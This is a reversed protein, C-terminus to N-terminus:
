IANYGKVSLISMSVTPIAPDTKVKTIFVAQASARELSPNRQLITPIKGLPSENILENFLEDILHHYKQAHEYLFALAHNPVYGRRLLKNVLHVEFLSVGIGWPIHIEDYAHKDTLSSIVGRFSFHSRTGFVHKRFIGEKKALTTRALDDYFAALQSITKVTRNEKTRLNHHQLDTDIGVITRIADVAGTIIPDVYTGVNTEEIVLLSKNPIPLFETFVCNRQERLLTLLPDVGGKKAKFGKLEFLANIINDFNEIFNNYGRPIGLEQVQVMIPPIKVVPKYTTDCLWRIIEFGSRTFKEALMTWVVPNILATVGRPTRMWLLPELDQDVPSAVVTNCSKCRIGINFEGIIEGCECTPLNTLLDGSYKTYIQKNLSEKDEESSEHIDNVVIPTRSVTQFLQSFDM